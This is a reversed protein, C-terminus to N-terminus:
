GALRHGGDGISMSPSAGATLRQDLELSTTDWEQRLQAVLGVGESRFVDETIRSLPLCMKHLARAGLNGATSCISHAEFRFRQVDQFSLAVSLSSLSTLCDHKFDLVLQAVFEIGGLGELEMLTKYDLRPAAEIFPIPVALPEVKARSGLVSRLAVLLVETRIPKILCAAMGAQSCQAQTDDSEDATLAILPVRQKGMAAFQYFQAVEIGNLGPMNVDLLGLDVDGESLLALAEEGGAALTVVAGARSLMKDMVSRNVKNDDAVLIRIGKLDGALSISEEVAQHTVTARVQISQLSAIRLARQLEIDSSQFNISTSFRERIPRDPLGGTIEPSAYIKADPAHGKIDQGQEAIVDLVLGSERLGPLEELRKRLMSAESAVGAIVSVRSPVLSTGVEAAAQLALNVWFTSGAALTSEAGIRGEMLRVQQRCLALGLGTGGFRNFVTEDAQAFLGFIKGHHEPAVGIGTDMVEIRFAVNRAEDVVGDASVTVSGRDTFKVANGCLNLLVERIRRKDGKLRLPTRATIYSNVLLGKKRGDVAIIATVNGILEVLDFEESVKQTHEVGNKAFELLDSVLAIQGEAAINITEVMGSQDSDLVTARLAETTGVIAHLPTRLEHSVSALFLSKARDAREARQRAKALQHVLAASYTPLVALGALLGLSLSRYNGWFPDTQIVFGFGAISLVSASIMYRIGFRFGYGIIVWLYAAYLFATESGGAILMITTGSTDLVLGISRRLDVFRHKVGSYYFMVVALSIWILTPGSWRATLLEDGIAWLALMMAAGAVLRNIGMVKDHGLKSGTRHTLRRFALAWRSRIRDGVGEIVSRIAQRTYLSLALVSRNTSDSSRIWFRFTGEGRMLKVLPQGPWALLRAM